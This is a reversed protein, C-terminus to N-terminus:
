TFYVSIYRAEDVILAFYGTKVINDIIKQKVLDACIEIIEDQVKWSIQSIKKNYFHEFDPIFKTFVINCLEKFNGIVVNYM